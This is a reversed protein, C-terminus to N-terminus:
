ISRRAYLPEDRENETGEPYTIVLIVNVPVLAPIEENVPVYSEGIQLPEALGTTSSIPSVTFIFVM